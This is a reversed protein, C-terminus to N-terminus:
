VREGTFYSYDSLVRRPVTAGKYVIGPVKTCGVLETMQQAYHMRESHGVALHSDKREVVACNQSRQARDPKSPATYNSGQRVKNGPNSNALVTAENLSKPM